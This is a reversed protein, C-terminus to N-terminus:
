QQQAAAAQLGKRDADAQKEAELVRVIKMVDEDSMSEPKKGAMVVVIEINGEGSDVVELLAKLTLRVAADRNLTAQYNKELFERVFKDNKGASAAKWSSLVGSPDSQFLNPTGDPDFGAFFSTVGFPRVGGIQTFKQQLQATWRAVYEVSPADEFTLRYSQCEM